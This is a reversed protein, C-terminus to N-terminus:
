CSILIADIDVNKMLIGNSCTTKDSIKDLEDKDLMLWVIDCWCKLPNDSSSVM